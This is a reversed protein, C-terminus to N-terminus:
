ETWEILPCVKEKKAKVWKGLLTRPETPERKVEVKKKSLDYGLWEIFIMPSLAIFVFLGVTSLFFLLFCLQWFYMCLSTNPLENNVLKDDSTFSKMLRYHWSKKSLTM